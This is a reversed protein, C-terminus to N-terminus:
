LHVTSSKNISSYSIVEDIIDDDGDQDDGSMQQEDDRENNYTLRQHDFKSRWVYMAWFSHGFFGGPGDFSLDGAEMLDQAM